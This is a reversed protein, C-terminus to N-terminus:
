GAAQVLCRALIAAQPADVAYGDAGAQAAFEASLPAGGVIVRTRSRIGAEGFAALTTRIQPMTTTLLASLGVVQPQWERVAAIFHGPSVDVGLDIVEFGAGELAMAVVNKGVDHIDGQVTGLVVRGLPQMGAQHLAPRLLALGAKMARAAMLMEPLFAEQRSFQEGVEAMAAILGQELIEQPESGTELAARVAVPVRSADGEVTAEFVARISM